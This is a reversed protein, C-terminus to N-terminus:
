EEKWVFMGGSKTLVYGTKFREFLRTELKEELSNIRRLVTTHNVKLSKGAEKLTGLRAVRLFYLYNDWNTKNHM